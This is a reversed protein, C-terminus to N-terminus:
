CFESQAWDSVRFLRSQEPVTIWIEATWKGYFGLGMGSGIYVRSEKEEIYSDWFGTTAKM